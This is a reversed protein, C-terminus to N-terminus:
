GELIGKSRMVGEVRAVRGRLGPNGEWVKLFRWGMLIAERIGPHQVGRLAEAGYACVLLM